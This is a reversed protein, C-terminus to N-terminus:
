PRWVKLFDNLYDRQAELCWIAPLFCAQVSRSVFYPFLKSRIM